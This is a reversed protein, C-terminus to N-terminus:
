ENVAAGEVHSGVTATTTPKDPGGEVGKLAAFVIQYPIKKKEGTESDPPNVEDSNLVTTIASKSLRDQTWLRRILEQRAIPQGNEPDLVTIKARETPEKKEGSAAKKGGGKALQAQHAMLQAKTMNSTDVQQGEDAQNAQQAEDQTQGQAMQRALENEDTAQTQHGRRPNSAM